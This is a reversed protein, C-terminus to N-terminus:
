MTGSRRVDVFTKMRWGLQELGKYCNEFFRVRLRQKLLLQKMKIVKEDAPICYKEIEYRQYAKEQDFRYHDYRKGVLKDYLIELNDLVTLEKYYLERYHVTLFENEKLKDEIDMENFSVIDEIPHEKKLNEIIIDVEERNM